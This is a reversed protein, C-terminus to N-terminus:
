ALMIAADDASECVKYYGPGADGAPFAGKVM